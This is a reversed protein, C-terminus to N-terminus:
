QKCIGETLDTKDNRPHTYERCSSTVGYGGLKVASNTVFFQGVSVSTTFVADQSMQTLQVDEPIDQFKEDCQQVLNGLVKSRLTSNRTLGSVHESPVELADDDSVKAVLERQKTSSSRRSASYSSPM